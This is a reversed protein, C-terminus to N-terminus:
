ENKKVKKIKLFDKPLDGAEIMSQILSNAIGERKALDGGDLVASVVERKEEVVADFKEDITGEVSLYVASVSQSEQGIRYVRDEAQEEWGPVWERELFVTTDAATLTLGEKAAITSCVVADLENAQFREVVKSREEASVSGSIEAITWGNSTLKHSIDALVDKHHTFVVVPKGTQENYEKLWEYAANVKILGCKHRLDTLMNLVFGAPMSGSEKHAVWEAIWSDHVQQYSKLEADTPQVPHITRVKDPLETLVEKKLRRICFDRTRNHLEDTNSAGTTDWVYGRAGIYKQYADCYRKAYPMFNSFEAPRLLNLTTYFEEPRNTIATGSLCIVSDAEEAIELTAKTRQRQANKLYHSEDCVVINAGIDLLQSKRKNMIDYNIVYIDADPIDGKGGSIVHTTLHPLWLKAEKGWNYKVNAPCVVIAPLREQTLAIYALAQITKGIGMDDGILARGEALEVFRVGVYQFPYLEMGSPFVKDLKAKMDAVIMDDLAVASSIEIRKAIDKKVNHIEPIAGIADALKICEDSGHTISGQRLREMLPVAETKSIMWTKTAADYKRGMTEKVISMVSNRDVPNDIWPWQLRVFGKELTASYSVPKPKTTPKKVSFEHSATFAEISDDLKAGAGKLAECAKNFVELDNSLTWMKKGGDFKLQPFKLAAKLAKNFNSNFRYVLGIRQTTVSKGWKNTWVDQVVTCGVSMSDAEHTDNSVLLDLFDDVKDSLHFMGAEKLISPLQTNRYKRLRKAIEGYNSTQVGKMSLNRVFHWDFKNPGLDDKSNPAGRATFINIVKQVDSVSITNM